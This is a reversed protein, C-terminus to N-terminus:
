NLNLGSKLSNANLGVRLSSIGKTASTSKKAKQSARKNGLTPSFAGSNPAPPTKPLPKPKSIDPTLCM